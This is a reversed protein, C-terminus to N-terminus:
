LLKNELLYCLLQGRADAETDAMFMETKTKDITAGVFWRLNKTDVLDKTGYVYSKVVELDCRKPLLEGLECVTFASALNSPLGYPSDGWVDQVGQLDGIFPIQDEPKWWCFLSHQKVGLEKLKKALELSVVQKSLEM